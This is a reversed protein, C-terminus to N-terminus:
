RDGYAATPPSVPVDGPGAFGIAFFRGRRSTVFSSSKVSRQETSVLGTALDVDAGLSSHPAAPVSSCMSGDLQVRFAERCKGLLRELWRLATLHHLGLPDADIDLYMGADCVLYDLLHIITWRQRKGIDTQSVPAGVLDIVARLLNTQGLLAPAPLEALVAWLGRAGCERRTMVAHQTTSCM